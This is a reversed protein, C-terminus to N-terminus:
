RVSDSKVGGGHLQLWFHRLREELKPLLAACTYRDIAWSEEPEDMGAVRGTAFITTMSGVVEHLIDMAALIDARTAAAGQLHERATALQESRQEQITEPVWSKQAPPITLFEWFPMRNVRRMTRLLTLVGRSAQRLEPSGPEPGFGATKLSTLVIDVPEVIPVRPDIYQELARPSRVKKLAARM